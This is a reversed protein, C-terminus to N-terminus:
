GQPKPPVKATQMAKILEALSVKLQIGSDFAVMRKNQRKLTEFHLHPGTSNGTSGVLGIITGQSVWQGPQVYVKSLHAYRTALQGDQHHLLIALGYGGMFGATQVQGPFTALVPTGTPAALDTGAHFSTKGSIPHTRWGFASTISAPMPLPFIMRQRNPVLWKLPNPSSSLWKISPSAKALPSLTAPAGTVWPTPATKPIYSPSYATEQPAPQQPPQYSYTSYTPASAVPTYQRTPINPRQATQVAPGCLTAALVPDINLSAKCGSVSGSLVTRNSNPASVTEVPEDVAGYTISANNKNSPAITPRDAVQPMVQPSIAPAIPAAPAAPVPAEPLAIPEPIPPAVPAPEWAPEPPDIFTDVPPAAPTIPASETITPSELDIAQARQNLSLVGLGLPLSLWSGLCLLSTSRLHTRISISHSRHMM